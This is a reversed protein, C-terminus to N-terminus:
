QTIKFNTIKKSRTKSRMEISKYYKFLMNYLVLEHKRQAALFIRNCIMHVFSDLLPDINIQFDEDLTIKESFNSSREDLLIIAPEM